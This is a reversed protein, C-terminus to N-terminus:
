QHRLAEAPSLGAARSAPYLGFVLGVASAFAFALLVTKFSILPPWHAFHAVAWAGGAGILVGFAGGALCLAVAEALFQQLIDRRRAGLAMLLGVERMRETVAVLMINMVGVGGVLLAIAAVSGIILTMIGTAKEILSLMDKMSRGVYHVSAGPHRRELIKICDSIAQPVAAENVAVGNLAQIVRTNLVEQAFTIPVFAYQTMASFLSSSPSEVIGIITAPTDQIFIQRGLAHGDPFLSRALKSELVVVRRHAQVDTETFFHGAVLPLNMVAQIDPTTGILDCYVSKGQSSPSRLSIFMGSTVPALKEVAPSLEKILSVDELRFTDATPAEGREVDVSIRFGRSSGMKEIEGLLAAQGGQGVAVVAIVAAIGIAIGLATLVARFRHARLNDLTLLLLDDPRM